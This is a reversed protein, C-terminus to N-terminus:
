ILTHCSTAYIAYLITRIWCEIALLLIAAQGNHGLSRVIKEHLGCHRSQRVEYIKFASDLARLNLQSSLDKLAELGGRKGRRRGKTKRGRKRSLMRIIVLISCPGNGQSVDTM